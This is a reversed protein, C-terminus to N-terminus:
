RCYFANCHLAHDVDALQAPIDPVDEVDRSMVNRRVFDLLYTFAFWEDALRISFTQTEDTWGVGPSDQRYDQLRFAPAHEVDYRRPWRTAFLTSSM